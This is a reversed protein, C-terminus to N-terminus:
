RAATRRLRALALVIGVAAVLLPMVAINLAKLWNQLTEEDQRLEKRVKRLDKNAKAQKEQLSTLEKQAEPSLIFRQNGEKKSQIEGIKTQAEQVQKEFDAIKSQYRKQAEARMRDVVVFPRRISARSRVGILDSDGAMQEVLSQVFTLNGNLPQILGLM